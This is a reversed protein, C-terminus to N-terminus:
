SGLYMAAMQFAIVPMARAPRDATLAKQLVPVGAWGAAGWLPAASLWVAPPATLWLTGFSLALM